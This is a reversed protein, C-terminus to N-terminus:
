FDVGRNNVFVRLTQLSIYIPLVLLFALILHSSCSSGLFSDSCTLCKLYQGSWENKQFIKSGAGALLWTLFIVSTDIIVNFQGVSSSCTSHCLNNNHQFPTAQCNM